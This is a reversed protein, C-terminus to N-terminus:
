INVAKYHNIQAKKVQKKILIAVIDIRWNDTNIDHEALYKNATIIIKNIKNKNVAEEPAGFDLTRRTKVEVFVYQDNDKAVIDIEGEKSYYNETLLQYGKKLLFQGALQQGFKGIKIKDTM